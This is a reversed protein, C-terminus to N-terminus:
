GNQHVHFVMAGQAVTLAWYSALAQVKSCGRRTSRGTRRKWASYRVGRWSPSIMGFDDNLGIQVGVEGLQPRQLLEYPRSRTRNSMTGVVIVVM